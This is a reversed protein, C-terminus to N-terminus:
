WLGPRIKNSGIAIYIKLALQLTQGLCSCLLHLALCVKLFLDLSHNLLYHVLYRPSVLNTDSKEPPPDLRVQFSPHLNEMPHHM